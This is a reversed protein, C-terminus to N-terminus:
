YQYILNSSFISNRLHKELTSYKKICVLKPHYQRVLDSAIKEFFEPINEGTKCSTEFYTM